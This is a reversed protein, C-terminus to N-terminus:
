CGVAALLLLDKPGPHVLLHASDGHVQNFHGEDFVLPQGEAGCPVLPGGLSTASAVAVIPAAQHRGVADQRHPDRPRSVRAQVPGEDEVAVLAALLVDVADQPPGEQRAERRAAGGFQGLLEPAARDAVLGDAAQHPPEVLFEVAVAALRDPGDIRHNLDVAHVHGDGARLLDDHQHHAQPFVSALLDQAEREPGAFPAHFEQPVQPPPAQFADLHEDAVVGPGHPRGDGFHVRFDRPLRAGPVPQDPQVVDHTRRVIPTPHYALRAADESAHRQLHSLLRGLCPPTPPLGVLRCDGAPEHFAQGVAQGEIMQGFLPPSPRTRRTSGFPQDPREPHPQPQHAGEGVVSGGIAGDEALEGAPVEKWFNCVISSAVLMARVKGNEYCLALAPGAKDADLMVCAKGNEDWLILGPGNKNVILSARRKGNEDFLGLGPGDKDVNLMARVKGANDVLVFQKARVEQAVAAGPAAVAPTTEAQAKKLVELLTKEGPSLDMGLEIREKLTLPFGGIMTEEITTGKAAERLLMKEEPTLPEDRAVKARVAEVAQSFLQFASPPPKQKPDAGASPAAAVRPGLTGALVWVVLALGMLALLWRNRRKARDLEKELNELREDTTM